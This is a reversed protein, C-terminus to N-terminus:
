QHSFSTFWGQRAAHDGRQLPLTWCPWPQNSPPQPHNWERAKDSLKWPRSSIHWPSDPHFSSDWCHTLRRGPSPPVGESLSPSHFACSLFPSSPPPHIPLARRAAETKNIQENVIGHVKLSNWTDTGLCTIETMFPMDPLRLVCINLPILPSPSFSMTSRLLRHKAPALSSSEGQALPEPSTWHKELSPFEWHFM